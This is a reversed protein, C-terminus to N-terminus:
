QTYVGSRIKMDEFVLMKWLKEVFETSADDLISQIKTLLQSHNCKQLLLKVVINIMMPEEVGMYEKIRKGIWPKCVKNIVDLELLRDWDLDHAYVEEIAKPMQKYIEKIKAIQAQREEPTM